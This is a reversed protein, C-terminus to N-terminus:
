GLPPLLAELQIRHRGRRCGRGRSRPRDPEQGGFGYGAICARWGGAADDGGPRDRPPAEHPELKAALSPRVQVVAFPAAPTPPILAPRPERSAPPSPRPRQDDSWRAHVARWFRPPAVPPLVKRRTQREGPGVGSGQPLPRLPRPM